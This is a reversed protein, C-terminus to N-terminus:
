FNKDTLEAADDVVLGVGPCYIKTSRDASHLESTEFVRVCDEFGTVTGSLDLEVQLNMEDNEGRDLAVDPAMEQFYRAGLLFLGPMIVGPFADDVGAEWAGENGVVVGDEVDEVAEGWYFIANNEECRGFYNHSVEVLDGDIFEREEIVRTDIGFAAITYIGSPIPNGDATRCNSGDDFCTTIELLLEGEDDEGELISQNGPVMPFLPNGPSALTDETVWTCDGLPFDETFARKNSESQSPDALLLSPSAVLAVALAIALPGIINRYNTLERMGYRRPPRSINTGM